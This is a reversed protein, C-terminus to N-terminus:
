VKEVVTMNARTTRKHKKPWSSDLTTAKGM